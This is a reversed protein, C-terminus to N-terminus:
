HNCNNKGECSNGDVNALKGGMEECSGKAVYKWENPSNDVTAQGACSHAGDSSACNNEGAKAIGYCKEKDSNDQAIATTGAAAIVGALAASLLLKNMTIFELNQHNICVTM